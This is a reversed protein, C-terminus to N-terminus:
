KLCGAMQVFILLNFEYRMIEVETKKLFVNKKNRIQKTTKSVNKILNM